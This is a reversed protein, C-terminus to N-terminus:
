ATVSPLLHRFRSLRRELALVPSLLLGEYDLVKCRLVADGGDQGLILCALCAKVM